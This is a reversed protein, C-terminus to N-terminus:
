KKIRYNLHVSGKCLRDASYATIHQKIYVTSFYVARLVIAKWEDEEALLCLTFIFLKALTYSLTEASSVQFGRHINTLNYIHDRRGRSICLELRHLLLLAAEAGTYKKGRASISSSPPPPPPPCGRAARDSPKQLARSM